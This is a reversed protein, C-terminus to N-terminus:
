CDDDNASTCSDPCCQDGNECAGVLGCTGNVCTGTYCPNDTTMCDLPSQCSACGPLIECNANVCNGTFCPDDLPNCDQQEGCPKCSPKRACLGNICNGTLCPDVTTDCDVQTVCAVDGGPPPPIAGECNQCACGPQSDCKALELDTCVTPTGECNGQWSCGLLLSCTVFNKQTDCAKPQGICGTTGMMSCGSQQFCTSIDIQNCPTPSGMCWWNFNDWVCGKQNACQQQQFFNGCQQATGGCESTMAWECGKQKPCSEESPFAECAIPDGACDGTQVCGRLSVCAYFNKGACEDSAVKGVCAPTNAQGGNGGSQTPAATCSGALASV